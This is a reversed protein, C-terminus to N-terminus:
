AVLGQRKAAELEDQPNRLHKNQRHFEQETLPYGRGHGQLSGHLAIRHDPCITEGIEDVTYESTELWKDCNPCYRYTM